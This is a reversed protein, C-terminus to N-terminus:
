KESGTQSDSLAIPPSDVQELKRLIHLFRLPAIFSAWVGIAVAVTWEVNRFHFATDLERGPELHLGGVRVIWDVLASLIAAGSVIAFATGAISILQRRRSTRGLVLERRRRALAVDGAWLWMCYALALALSFPGVVPDFTM